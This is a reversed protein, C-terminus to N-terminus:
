RRRCCTAPGSSRISGPISTCWSSGDSRCPHHARCIPPRGSSPWPPPSACRPNPIRPTSRWMTCHNGFFDTHVEYLDPAPSIEVDHDLVQQHSTVRPVLFARAFSATVEADYRYRTRHVVQYRRPDNHELPRACGGVAGPVAFSFAPLQTVFHAQQIQDSLDRLGADLEDLLLRARQRENGGFGPAPEYQGPQGGARSRGARNTPQARRQPCPHAPGAPLPGIEPELRGAAAPGVHGRRPHGGRLQGGGPSPLHDGLRRCEASVRELVAETVPGTVSSVTYRLLQVTLEAREIRRGAEVFAWTAHQLSENAVGAFALLSRLAENIVPQVWGPSGRRARRGCRPSQACQLHQLHRRQAIRSRERRLGGDTGRQLRCLGSNDRRAAAPPDAAAARRAARRM